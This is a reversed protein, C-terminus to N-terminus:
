VEEPTMSGINPPLDEASITATDGATLDVGGTINSLNCNGELCTVYIAGTVPDIEISMYSGRVTALGSPTEVDLAGGSLIVWLKGAELRIKTLLGDETIEGPELTFFTNSGLRVISGDSIDVRVRADDLTQIQGRSALGFGDKTVPTFETDLPQRALIEGEIESLVADLEQVNPQSPTPTGQAQGSDQDPTANNNNGGCASAVLMTILFIFISLRHKTKM